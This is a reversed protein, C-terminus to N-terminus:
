PSSTAAHEFKIYGNTTEDRNSPMCPKKLLRKIAILVVREISILLMTENTTENITQVGKTPMNVIFPVVAARARDQRAPM